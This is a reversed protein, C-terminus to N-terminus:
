NDALEDRWRWDKGRFYIVEKGKGYTKPNVSRVGIM